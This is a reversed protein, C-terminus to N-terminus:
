PRKRVGGAQSGGGDGVTSGVMRQDIIRALHRLDSDQEWNTLNNMPAIWVKFAARRFWVTAGSGKADYYFVAADGLDKVPTKRYQESDLILLRDFDERLHEKNRYREITVDYLGSRNTAQITFHTHSWGSVKGKADEVGARKEKKFSDPLRSAAHLIESPKSLPDFLLGIERKWGSGLAAEDPLADLIAQPDSASAAIRTCLLLVTSGAVFSKGANMRNSPNLTRNAKVGGVRLHAIAAAVLRGFRWVLAARRWESCQYTLSHM